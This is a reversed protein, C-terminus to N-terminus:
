SSLTSSYFNTASSHYGHSLSRPIPQCTGMRRTTNANCATSCKRRVALVLSPDNIMTGEKLRVAKIPRHTTDGLVKVVHKLSKYPQSNQFYRQQEQAVDKAKREHWERLQHYTTDLRTAFAQADRQAQPNHCTSPQMYAGQPKCYPTLWPLYTIIHPHTMKHTTSNGKSAARRRRKDCPSM